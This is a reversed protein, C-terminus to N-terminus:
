KSFTFIPSYLIGNPYVVKFQFCGTSNKASKWVVNYSDSNFKVVSFSKSKITKGPLTNQINATAVSQSAGLCTITSATLTVNNTTKLEIGANYLKFKLPIAAGPNVKIMTQPSVALKNTDVVPSLWTSITNVTSTASPSTSSSLLSSKSDTKVRNNDAMAPSVFASTSLLAIIILTFKNNVIM